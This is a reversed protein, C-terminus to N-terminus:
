SAKCIYHLDFNDPIYAIPVESINCQGSLKINYLYFNSRINQPRQLVLICLESKMSMTSWFFAKPINTHLGSYNYEQLAKMLFCAWYTYHQAKRRRTLNLAMDYINHMHSTSMQKGNLPPRLCLNSEMM